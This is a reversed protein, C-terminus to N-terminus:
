VTRGSLIKKSDEVNLTYHYHWSSQSGHPCSVMWNSGIWKPGWRCTLCHFSKDRELRLVSCFDMYDVLLLRRKLNLGYAQVVWNRIRVAIVCPTLKLDLFAKLEQPTVWAKSTVLSVAVLRKEGNVERATEDTVSEIICIYGCKGCWPDMEFCKSWTETLTDVVFKLKELLMAFSM